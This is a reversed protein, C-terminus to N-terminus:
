RTLPIPNGNKAQEIAEHELDSLYDLPPSDKTTGGVAYYVPLCTLQNRFTSRDQLLYEVCAEAMEPLPQVITSCVLDKYGFHRVGDFGIVQVDEPVRLGLQHLMICVEYALKDTICFIGDYELTGNHFHEKLFDGFVSVTVGDDVMKLDYPIGKMACGNIFGAMRKNPENDLRSGQRLFALRTCGLDALKEAALQGGMYNDCTVCPVAGNFSRDISVFSVDAPIKLNPNYTLGIIGDVKNQLALEIYEQERGPDFDTCCLLM